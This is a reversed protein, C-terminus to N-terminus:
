CQAQLLSFKVTTLDAIPHQTVGVTKKRDGPSRNRRDEWGRHLLLGRQQSSDTRERKEQSKAHAGSGVDLFRLEIRRGDLVDEAGLEEGNM